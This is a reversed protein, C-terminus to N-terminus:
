KVHNNNIKTIHVYDIADYYPNQAKKFRPKNFLQFKKTGIKKKSMPNLDKKKNGGGFAM